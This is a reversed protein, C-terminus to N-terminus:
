FDQKNNEKIKNLFFRKVYEFNNNFVKKQEETLNPLIQSKKRELVKVFEESTLVRHDYSRNASFNGGDWHSLRTYLKGNEFYFERDTGGYKDSEIELKERLFYLESYDDDGFDEPLTEKLDQWLDFDSYDSNKNAQSEESLLFKEFRSDIRNEETSIQNNGQNYPNLNGQLTEGNQNLENKTVDPNNKKISFPTGKQKNAFKNKLVIVIIIVAVVILAVMITKGGTDSSTNAPYTINEAPTNVTIGTFPEVVRTVSSFDPKTIDEEKIFHQEFTVTNIINKAEESLAFETDDAVFTFTCMKNEGYFSCCYVAKEKGDEVSVYSACLTRYGNTTTVTKTKEIFEKFDERQKIGDHFDLYIFTWFLDFSARETDFFEVTFTVEEPSDNIMLKETHWKNDSVKKYYDPVTIDFEGSVASSQIVFTAFILISVLFISIRKKM